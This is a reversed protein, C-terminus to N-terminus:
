WREMERLALVLCGTDPDFDDRPGWGQRPLGTEFEACVHVLQASLAEVRYPAGTLPDTRRATEPCAPTRADPELGERHLCALHRALSHLDTRRMQDRREARAQEPGGVTWLGLGIMGAALGILAVRASRMNM